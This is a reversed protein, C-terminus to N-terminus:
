DVLSTAANWALHEKYFNDLYTTGHWTDIRYDPYAPLYMALGCCRSLLVDIFRATHAEYQIAKDLAEQLASLEAESAGAERLLDKLDFFALYNKKGVMRDYVQVNRGDLNRIESRYEEFLEKCVEALPDLKRCDVLTITAGYTSNHEYEAFYDTCVGQVDPVEPKLLHEALTSYVMGAGPIECPSVALLDCVNRLEWAVEVTGMLCSDFILYDLHYPIAAALDYIEIEETQSKNEAKYYEQGFTRRMSSSWFLESGSGRDHPSSFYGEPLWGTSHSSMVAGYSAAPFRERVLNFVETVIEKHAMATGKPWTYLTDMVPNGNNNQYMRILVPSIEQNYAAYSETLHSMVLLVDENKGKGPLYGKKLTIINNRIDGSISNFGAEYLLLVKRTTEQNCPGLSLNLQCGDRTCSALSLGMLLLFLFHVIKRGVM